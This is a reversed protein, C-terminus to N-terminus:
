QVDLSKPFRDPNLDLPLISVSRCSLIGVSSLLVGFMSGNVRVIRPNQKCQVSIRLLQLCSATMGQKRKPCKPSPPPHSPKVDNEKQAACVKRIRKKFFDTEAHFGHKQKQQETEKTTPDSLSSGPLRTLSHVGTGRGFLLFFVGGAWVAFFFSVRGRGLCCFFSCAGPGFLLFFFVCGGLCCFLSCPGRGFLLCFCCAGRGFLLFFFCVWGGLCCFYVRESPAPAHNKKSNPRPRKKKKSNPRPRPGRGFLLFFVRM